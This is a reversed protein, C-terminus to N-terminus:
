KSHLVRYKDTGLYPLYTFALGLQKNNDTGMDFIYNM